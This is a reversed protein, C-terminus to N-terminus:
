KMNHDLEWHCNRCLQIINDKGNVEGMLADDDFTALGKVHCLEVHKSYGCHKCPLKTLDKHWSRALGRVGAHLSSIHYKIHSNKIRDRYEGITLLELNERKGKIYEQFHEECLTSRWNRILNNCDTSNCVRTTKRKPYLKNTHTASCSKCCYKPNKTENECNLCKNM